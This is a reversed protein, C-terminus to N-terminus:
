ANLFLVVVYNNLEIGAFIPSFNNHGPPRTFNLIGRREADIVTLPTLRLRVPNALRGMGKAVGVEIHANRGEFARIDDETLDM